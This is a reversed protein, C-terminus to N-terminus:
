AELEGVGDKDKESVTSACCLPLLMNSETRVLLKACTGGRNFLAVVPVGDGLGVREVVPVRM